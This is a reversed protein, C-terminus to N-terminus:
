LTEYQIGIEKFDNFFTPYSKSVVSPNEILIPAIISLPAFAMAMRHDEYTAITTEALSNSVLSTDGPLLSLSDSTVGIKAGCKQLEKQLAILRDTEKIKLTHLGTLECGIGLGFCTVAITQAIDPTKILNLSLNAVPKTDSKSITISLDENYKTRVGLKEFLKAVESDGQLSENKYSTLTIEMNESLAVASYFYSASSWDSEVIITKRDLIKAPEVLIENREFTTNIGVSKLLDQTMLIYPISTIEGKLQIILGEKLIAGVLMLASIYQSSVTADILVKSGIAEAPSIELPPYGEKGVYKIKAGLQQLAEVLLKLPRQQMRESGTLVVKHKTNVAFFATLFRMATGAHHVDVVDMTTKLAKRLVNSDDSESCNEIAISPYLAQLILLRNSESKSGTITIKAKEIKSIYSLRCTMKETIKIQM